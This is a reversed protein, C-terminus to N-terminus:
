VLVKVLVIGLFLVTVFAINIWGLVRSVKKEKAMNSQDYKYTDIFLNFLGSFVWIMIAVDLYGSYIEGIM